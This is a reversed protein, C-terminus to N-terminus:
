AARSPEKAPVRGLRKVACQDGREGLPNARRGRRSTQRANGEAPSTEHVAHEGFSQDIREARAAEIGSQRALNWGVVAPHRESLSRERERSQSGAVM